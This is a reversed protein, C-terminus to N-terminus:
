FPRPRHPIDGPLRGFWPLKGGLWLLGGLAVLVLGVLVLIKGIDNMFVTPASARCSSPASGRRAGTGTTGPRVRARRVAAITGGDRHSRVQAGRSAPDVGAPQGRQCRSQARRAIGGCDHSRQPRGLAIAHFRVAGEFGFAGGERAADPHGAERGYEAALHLPTSGYLSEVDVEAGKALLLEVIQHHGNRSAWHLPTSHYGDTTKACDPNAKLFEAVRATMGLGAASFIDLESGAAVLLEAVDVHQAFLATHLPTWRFSNRVNVDAGQAVLLEVIARSGVGAARHLPTSGGTDRANVDAGEDILLMAIGPRNAEAAWHLPTWGLGDHGNIDAHRAVLSELLDVQGMSAAEHLTSM